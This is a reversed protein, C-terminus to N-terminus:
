FSNKAAFKANEFLLLKEVLFNGMKESLCFNLLLKGGKGGREGAVVGSSRAKYFVSM